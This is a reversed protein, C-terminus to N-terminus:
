QGGWMSRSNAMYNVPLQQGGSGGQYKAALDALNGLTAVITNADADSLGYTSKLAAVPGTQGAWAALSDNYWLIQQFVDRLTVAFQSVQSDIGGFGPGAM